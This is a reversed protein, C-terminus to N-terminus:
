AGISTPRERVKVIPLGLAACVANQFALWRTQDTWMRFHRYNQIVNKM